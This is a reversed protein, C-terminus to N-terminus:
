IKFHKKFKTSEGQAKLLDFLILIIELYFKGYVSM